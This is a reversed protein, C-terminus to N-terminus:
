SRCTYRSVHLAVPPVRLRNRVSKRSSGIEFRNGVSKSGIEFRNPVSNPVSHSGFKFRNRVSKSGIEFWPLPPPAPPPPTATTNAPARSPLELDTSRPPPTITRANRPAAFPQNPPLPNPPRNHLNHPHTTPHPTTQSNNHLHRPAAGRKM